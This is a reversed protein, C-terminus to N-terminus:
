SPAIEDPPTKRQWWPASITACQAGDIAVLYRGSVHFIRTSCVRTPEVFTTADNNVVFTPVEYTITGKSVSLGVIRFDPHDLAIQARAQKTAVRASRAEQFIHMFTVAFLIALLVFAISRKKDEAFSEWGWYICMVVLILGITISAIEGSVIILERWFKAGRSSSAKDYM